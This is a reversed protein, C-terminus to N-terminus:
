ADESNDDITVIESRGTWGTKHLEPDHFEIEGVSATGRPNLAYHGDICGMAADHIEQTACSGPNTKSDKCPWGEPHICPFQNTM